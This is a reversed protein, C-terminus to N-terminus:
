IIMIENHFEVLTQRPKTNLRKLVKIDFVKLKQCYGFIYVDGYKTYIEINKEDLLLLFFNIKLCFMKLACTNKVLM